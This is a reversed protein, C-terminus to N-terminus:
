PRPQDDEAILRLLIERVRQPNAKGGSAKMVPGVVAGIAKTRGARVDAAVQERGELAERCWAELSAEDDVQELGREAVIERPSGSGAVMLGLVERAGTTNITGAAVLEILEALDFPKVPLEDISGAAVEPDALARSLDNAVWNAAEKPRGCLRAVAEFYDAVERTGTLVRADYESLGLEERYRRRRAQPLECLLGRQREVFAETLTIPPLDPETFYRYDRAEEKTRMTRTVGASADFLRTEQRPLRASEGSEYAEIQRPIEYELAERVHRFSNLNKIEVKTRWAEGEPRVSVNVDCRLQGKEMDAEGAGAYRIIEKLAELYEVAEEPTELDAESVSEILAVGARNLDVLTHEGRDHIAKGADEELHIRTLRVFRGSALRIGGGTCFPRDYQSIQYNKPIDCYFYHKRDFKSEAAVDAGVALATRVALGLAAANLVPLSGPQGTCVPCTLSNPPAGFRVECSCFLKSNTALQAHVELGIVGVWRTGTVASVWAAGERCLAESM